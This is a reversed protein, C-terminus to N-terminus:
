HVGGGRDEWGAIGSIFLKQPAGQHLEGVVAQESSQSGSAATQRSGREM